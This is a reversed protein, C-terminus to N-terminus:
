GSRRPARLHSREDSGCWVHRPHYGYGSDPGARQKRVINRRHCGNEFGGMPAAGVEDCSETSHRRDMSRALNERRKSDRRVFPLTIVDVDCARPTCSTM